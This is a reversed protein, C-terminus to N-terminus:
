NDNKINKNEIINKTIAVATALFALGCCFIFASM